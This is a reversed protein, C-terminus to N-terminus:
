RGLAFFAREVDVARWNHEAGNWDVWKTRNANMSSAKTSCWECWNAYTEAQALKAAKSTPIKTSVFLCRLEPEVQQALRLSIVEDYVAVAQPDMFTLLKSAFAMQLCKEQVAELLAEANKSVKLLERSRKLHFIVEDTAQPLSNTRGEIIAGARSLARNVRLRGDSGSAFGWFVVSLLGHILKEDNDSQLLERHFEDLDLSSYQSRIEKTGSEWDKPVRVVLNLSKWSLDPKANGASVVCAPVYAYKGRADKLESPTM